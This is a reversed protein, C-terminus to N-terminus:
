NVKGVVKAEQNGRLQSAMGNRIIFRSGRETKAIVLDDERGIVTLPKKHTDLEVKDGKNLTTEM